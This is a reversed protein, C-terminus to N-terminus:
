IGMTYVRYAVSAALGVVIIVVALILGAKLSASERIQQAADGVKEIDPRDPVAQAKAIAIAQNSEIENGVEEAVDKLHNAPGDIADLETVEIEQPLPTDDPHPKRIPKKPPKVPELRKIPENNSNSPVSVSPARIPAVEKPQGKQKSTAEGRTPQAKAHDDYRKELEKHESLLHMTEDFPTLTDEAQSKSVQHDTATTANNHPKHEPVEIPQTSPPTLPRRRYTASSTTDHTHVVSASIPSREAILHNVPTTNTNSPPHDPTTQAPRPTLTSHVPKTAPPPSVHVHKHKVAQRNTHMPRLPRSAIRSPRSPRRVVSHAHGSPHVIKEKPTDAKLDHAAEEFALNGHEDVVPQTPMVAPEQENGDNTDSLEDMSSVGLLNFVALKNNGADILSQAIMDDPQGASRMNDVFKQM